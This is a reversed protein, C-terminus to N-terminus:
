RDFQFCIFIILCNNVSTCWNNRVQYRHTRRWQYGILWIWNACNHRPWTARDLHDRINRNNSSPQNAMMWNSITKWQTRSKNCCGSPNRNTRHPAHMVLFIASKITTLTHKSHRLTDRTIFLCDFINLQLTCPFRFPQFHMNLKLKMRHSSQILHNSIIHSYHSNCSRKRIIRIQIAQQARFM